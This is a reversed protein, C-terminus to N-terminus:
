NGAGSAPIVEEPDYRLGWGTWSGEPYSPHRDIKVPFGCRACRMFDDEYRHELNRGQLVMESKMQRGGEDYLFTGCQPCGGTAVPDKIYRVIRPDLWVPNNLRLSLVRGHYRSSRRVFPAHVTLALPLSASINISIGVTPAHLTATLPFTPVPNKSIKPVLLTLSLSQLLVTETVHVVPANLTLALSLSAAPVGGIGASGGLPASGYSYGGYSM